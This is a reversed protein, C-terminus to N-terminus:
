VIKAGRNDAHLIKLSANKNGARSLEHLMARGIKEPKELTIAVLTPGAGSLYATLAGNKEAARLANYFGPIFRERYPQHLRDDSAGKLLEYKGSAFAAVALASNQINIVADSLPVRHPLIARVSKTGLEFSPIIAVFYLKPAVPARFHHTASGAFFGGYFAPVANDPHGELKITLELIKEPSLPCKFWQNLAILIGLRVTVSSGLGSSRPVDGKVQVDFPQYRRKTTRFFLDIADAIFPDDPVEPSPSLTVKNYLQLAVGLTDFGPGLNATTAPVRISISHM